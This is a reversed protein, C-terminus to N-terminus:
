VAAAAEGATASAGKAGKALKSAGRTGVAMAGQGVDSNAVKNAIIFVAAGVGVIVFVGGLTGKGIRLYTSPDFLAGVIKALTDPISTVANVAGSIPDTLSKKDVTILPDQGMFRRYTEERYTQWQSALADTDGGAAQWLKYAASANNRPDKLWKRAEEPDSPIGFKGAHELSMQFLGVYNGGTGGDVSPNGGSEAMVIGEATALISKPWGADLLIASLHVKEDKALADDGKGLIGGLVDGPNPIGPISPTPIGPVPIGPLGPVPSISPM